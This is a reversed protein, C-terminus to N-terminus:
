HYAEAIKKTLEEATATDLQGEGGQAGTIEQAEKTYTKFSRM